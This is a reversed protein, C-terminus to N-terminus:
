AKELKKIAKLIDKEQDTKATLSCILARQFITVVNYQM